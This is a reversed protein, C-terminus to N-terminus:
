AAVGDLQKLVVVGTHSPRRRPACRGARRSPDVPQRPISPAGAPSPLVRGRRPRQGTRRGRGSRPARHGGRRTGRARQCRRHRRRRGRSTPSRTPVTSASSTRAAWRRRPASSPSRTRRTPPASSSSPTREAPSRRSRPRATPRRTVSTAADRNGCRRSPTTPPPRPRGAVRRRRADDARPLRCTPRRPRTRARGAATEVLHVADPAVAMTGVAEDHGEHGVYVIQYGKGSRVKVEHHVKTVLPCVADVVLGGKSRAAASSRPRRATPPCCSRRAQRAGRGRRGRVRCRAPPVPRRRAPQPRDRPLLVRAARLGQGDM